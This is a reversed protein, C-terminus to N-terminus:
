RLQSESKGEINHKWTSRPHILRGQTKVKQVNNAEDWDSTLNAQDNLQKRLKTVLQGM